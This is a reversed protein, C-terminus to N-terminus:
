ACQACRTVVFADGREGTFRSAIEKKAALEQIELFDGAFGQHSSHRKLQLKVIRLGASGDPGTSVSMIFGKAAVVNGRDNGREVPINLPTDRFDPGTQVLIEFRM